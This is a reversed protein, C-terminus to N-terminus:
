QRRGAATLAAWLGILILPASLVMGMTLWNGALYGIHGDPLRFFEVFIRAAGYLAIFAGGVLGPYRLAKGSHTLLILIFFLAFGELAAEYLQSPHRPLADAAPFIFAWPVETPRGYLEGNVFNAIRGLALGIPASAGIVDFLSFTSFSRSRAFLIMALITGALGGHFSMGGRWVALIQAPDSLYTQFNYFLVYGLRGGLIIGLVAWVLFDDIDVHSIPSPSAGWLAQNDVLRIAWWRGFLIGVVYAIAYWHIQFPGLEILVPDISPFPLVFLHM